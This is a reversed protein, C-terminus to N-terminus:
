PKCPVDIFVKIGDRMVEATCMKKPAPGGVVKDGYDLADVAAFAAADLSKTHVYREGVDTREDAPRFEPRAAPTPM